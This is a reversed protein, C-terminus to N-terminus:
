RDPDRRAVRKMFTWDPEARSPEDPWAEITATAADAWTSVMDAFQTHFQGVVSLIAAREPFPGSGALYSRAVAINLANRERAWQKISAVANLAGAKTGHDAFCCKSSNSSSSSPDRALHPWGNAFHAGATRLSRTCPALAADSPKM